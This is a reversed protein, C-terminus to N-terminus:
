LWWKVVLSLLVIIIACFALYPGAKVEEEAREDTHRGACGSSCDRCSHGETM